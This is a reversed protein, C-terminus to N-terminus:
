SPIALPGDTMDAMVAGHGDTNPGDAPSPFRDEYPFGRM